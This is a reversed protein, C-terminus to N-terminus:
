AGEGLLGAVAKRLEAWQAFKVFVLKSYNPGSAMAAGDDSVVIIPQAPGQARMAQVVDQSKFLLPM